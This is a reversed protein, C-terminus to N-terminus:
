TNRKLYIVYSEEQAALVLQRLRTINSILLIYM